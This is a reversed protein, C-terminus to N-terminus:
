SLAWQQGMAKLAAGATPKAYNSTTSIPAGSEPARVFEDTIIAVDAASLARTEFQVEAVRTTSLRVHCDLASDPRRERFDGPVDKSEPEAQDVQFVARDAM